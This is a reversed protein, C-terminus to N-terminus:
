NQGLNLYREAYRNLPDDSNTALSLKLACLADRYMAARVNTEPCDPKRIDCAELVDQIFDPYAPTHTKYQYNTM